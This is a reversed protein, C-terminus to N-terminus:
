GAINSHILWGSSIHQITEKVDGIQLISEHAIGIYKRYHCWCCSYSSSYVFDFCLISM